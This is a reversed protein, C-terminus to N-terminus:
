VGPDIAVIRGADNIGFLRLPALPMPPPFAPKPAPPMRRVNHWIVDTREEHAMPELLIDPDIDRVRCAEIMGAQALAFGLPALPGRLRARRAADEMIRDLRSPAPGHEAIYALKAARRQERDIRLVGDPAASM